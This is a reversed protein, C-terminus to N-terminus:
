NDLKRRGEGVEKRLLENEGKVVNMEKVTCMGCKVVEHVMDVEDLVMMSTWMKGNNTDCELWKCEFGNCAM